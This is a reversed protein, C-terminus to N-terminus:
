ADYLIQEFAIWGACGGGVSIAESRKMPNPACPSSGFITKHPNSFQEYLIAGIYISLNFNASIPAGHVGERFPRTKGFLSIEHEVCAGVDVSFGIRTPRGEIKREIEFALFHNLM